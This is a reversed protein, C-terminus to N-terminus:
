FSFTHFIYAYTPPVSPKTSRLFEGKFMHGYGAGFTFRSFKYTAFLDTEQGVHRGATGKASRAISSGSSNYLAERLSALWWSDYMFNLAFAKTWGLTALLKAAHINRWGVIDMHGFKDHGSPYLQDFSRSAYRYEGTLDIPKAALMWRRTLSSFWGFAHGVKRAEGVSELSYKLGHPWPGALRGGLVNVDGSPQEHRLFYAEVLNKGLLDPFSNYTGWVHNALYPRNFGGLNIKVPSVFLLELQARRSRWYVRAHDYTRGVNTWQSSALLRTEGYNVMRRGASMGFGQKRDPFLEFYAEHLDAPDRVTNPANPGYGPARADQVMGSLKLWSFPKYTLSFRNRFLATSLGTKHEYRGRSEIGIQWQQACLPAAASLLLAVSTLKVM